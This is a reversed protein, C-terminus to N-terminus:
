GHHAMPRAPDFAQEHDIGNPNGIPPVVKPKM